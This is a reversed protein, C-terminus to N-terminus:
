SAGGDTAANVESLSGPEIGPSLLRASRDRERQGAARKGPVSQM